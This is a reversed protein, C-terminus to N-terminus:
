KELTMFINGIVLTNLSFIGYPFICGKKERPLWWIHYYENIDEQGEWCGLYILFMVCGLGQRGKNNNNNSNKILFLSYM